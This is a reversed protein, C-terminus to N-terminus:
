LDFPNSNWDDNKGKGFFISFALLYTIARPLAPNQNGFTKISLLVATSPKSFFSSSNEIL